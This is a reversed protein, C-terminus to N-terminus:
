GNPCAVARGEVEGKRLRDYADAVGDLPVRETRIGIKGSHALDLVEMLEVATGWYTTAIRAGWPLSMAGYEISGGALGLLTLDGEFALLQGALALTQASGVVDLVLEAGRGGTTLARVSEPSAEGSGIAHDAGSDEAAKLKGPDLDIAVIRAPSLAGLIQVAMQGLGGVGIVVATSGPVLRSLSRKIAHYPTLAADSLPAADRPDLGDGLPILLRTSPVLMYEAMGGDRGLGGGSKGIELQNECYDERSLRCARCHGCGWPGYVAVPEGPEFGTVGEGLREVWGANEHGLTFPPDFPLAGAPWEMLHLDSHCLGAGGVKILVEGPGPEPVPVDVLEPPQQWETLRYALM